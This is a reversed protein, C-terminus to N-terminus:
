GKHLNEVGDIIEKLPERKVNRLRIDVKNHTDIIVKPYAGGKVWTVEFGLALKPNDKDGWLVEGNIERHGRATTLSKKADTNIKVYLSSMFVMGKM